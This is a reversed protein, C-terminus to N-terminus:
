SPRRVTFLRCGPLQRMETLWPHEFGSRYDVLYQALGPTEPRDLPLVHMEPLLYAAWRLRFFEAGSEGAPSVFAVYSGAPVHKRVAALCAALREQQPIGFRWLAPGAAWDGRHDYGELGTRVEFLFGRLTWALVLGLILKRLM